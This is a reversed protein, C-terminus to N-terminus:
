LPFLARALAAGLVISLIGLAMSGFLYLGSMMYSGKELLAVTEYSYTSFTTLSGCFGTAVFLRIEPSIVILQAALTLFCGLIFSGLVNVLLTGYPFAIGFRAAAWLTGYYRLAAGLTASLALISITTLM